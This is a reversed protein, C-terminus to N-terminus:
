PKKLLRDIRAQQEPTIGSTAPAQPSYLRSREVVRNVAGQLDGDEAALLPGVVNFIARMRQQRMASSENPVPQAAGMIIKVENQTIAKGGRAPMVVANLQSLLNGFSQQDEPLQAMFARAATTALSGADPDTLKTIAYAAPLGIDPIGGNEGMAYIRATVDELGARLAKAEGGGAKAASPNMSNAAPRWGPPVADNPGIRMFTKGDTIWEMKPQPQPRNAARIAEIALGRDKAAADRAAQNEQAVDKKIKMDQAFKEFAKRTADNAPRQPDYRMLRGGITEYQMGTRKGADFPVGDVSEKYVPEQAATPVQATAPGGMGQSQLFANAAAGVAEGRADERGSNHAAVIAAEDRQKLADERLQKQMEMQDRQFGQLAAFEFARRQNEKEIQAQQDDYAQRKFRGEGYKAADNALAGFLRSM